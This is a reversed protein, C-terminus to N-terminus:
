ERVGAGVSVGLYSGAGLLFALMMLTSANWGLPFGFAAACIGAGVLTLAVGSAADQAWLPLFDLRRTLPFLAGLLGGAAAIGASFLAADLPSISALQATSTVELAVFLPLKLAASIWTALVALVAGTLSFLWWPTHESRSM